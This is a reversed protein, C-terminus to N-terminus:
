QDESRWELSKQSASDQQWLTLTLIEHSAGVDSIAFQMPHDRAGETQLKGTM